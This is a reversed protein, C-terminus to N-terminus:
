VHGGDEEDGAGPPPPPDRSSIGCLASNTVFKSVHCEALVLFFRIRRTEKTAFGYMWTCMWAKKYLMLRLNPCLTPLIGSCLVYKGSSKSREWQDEKAVHRFRNLDKKYHQKGLSGVSYDM